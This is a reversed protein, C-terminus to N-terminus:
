RRELLEIRVADPTDIFAIRVGPRIEKIETAVTAGRGRVQAMAAEIDDVALGIHEVGLHPPRASTGMAAPAQEIFLTLGGLDVVIRTVPDGERRVESAGLAEVYFRAAAIADRSRQHVHDLRFSTM